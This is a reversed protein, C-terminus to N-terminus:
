SALHDESEEKGHLERLRWRMAPRSVQFRRSLSALDACRCLEEQVLPEPMLLEAAFLNVMREQESQYETEWDYEAPLAVGCDGFRWHGIEHAITFRRRVLPQRANVLIEARYPGRYLLGSVSAPLSESQEVRLGCHGAVALVDVPVALLDAATLLELAHGQADEIM